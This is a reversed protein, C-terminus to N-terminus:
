VLGALPDVGAPTAEDASAGATPFEDATAPAAGGGFAEDDRTFQVGTITANIRQGFDNDQAYIDVTMNGWCGSYPKGDQATYIERAPGYISFRRKNNASIYFKGAYEPQGAKTVDGRHLCLSDTARLKEKVQAWTLGKKWQHAAGVAEITAVVRKLDPHDPTMIGHATFTPTPNPNKPTPRAVFPEFCYLYSFRVSTLLLNGLGKPKDSSM